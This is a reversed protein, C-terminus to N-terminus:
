GFIFNSPHIPAIIMNPVADVYGKNPLVTEENTKNRFTKETNILRVKNDIKREM